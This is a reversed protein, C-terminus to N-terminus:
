GSKVANEADALLSDLAKRDLVRGGVIVVEIKRNNAVDQLPDASLLVLDARKGKAISGMDKDM